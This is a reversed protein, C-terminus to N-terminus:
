SSFAILPLAPTRATTGIGLPTATTASVYQCARLAIAAIGISNSAPGLAESSEAPMRLAIRSASSLPGHADGTL